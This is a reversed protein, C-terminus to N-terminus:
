VVIQVDSASWPKGVLLARLSTGEVFEMALFSDAAAVGFDIMRVVYPSDITAVAFIERRFRELIEVDARLSEKLVKLAVTRGTSKERAKWVRAFGGEGLEAQLDFRDSVASSAM